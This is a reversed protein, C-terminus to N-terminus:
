IKPKILENKNIKKSFQGLTMKSSKWDAVFNELAETYNNYKELYISVADKEIRETTYTLYEYISVEVGYVEGSDGRKIYAEKFRSRNVKNDLQNITFIKNQEVKNLTLLDSIEGYNDRFKTQDLLIITDSNNIIGNKVIENNIIDELEQTVVVAEGFFKRVTKYLYLIYNAMNPSAIAKWAEEIILAKRGKKLRMKQIFVDMIIMTVIPFLVKHEKITDVEFVIFKEDFLSRDMESNLTIEYEGNKYFKKLVFKFSNLDFQIKDNEIIDKFKVISFDYFSNFSLYDSEKNSNFYDEYYAFVCNTIATDETPSAKGEVGKWLLILLSKLFERKEENYEEKTIKFPNMTIPSEESYTIYRGGYYSCIGSYSHGTDVLVIDMEQLYYQRVLHNMFFSKGSGSPGLVFKNRNNIRNTQMPLDLPDIAIPIGTRDTFYIKFDSPDDKQDNEKYMLCIAPELTTKFYDYHKINVANGPISSLFLEYQNYSNQSPIIGINFLANEVYNVSFSLDNKDAYIMISFHCDVLLENKKAINKLANEIDEVAIDNAPDPMSTHRKKKRQLNNIESRQNNIKFVQNYVLIESAPVQNIFYMLDVPFEYGINKTTFPKIKSPFHLEDLDILNLTKLKKGKLEISESNVNFNDIKINEKNSFSFSIFKKLLISVEKEDLFKPVFNASELVEFVKELNALYKEFEKSDYTYFANRNIEKTITIYTDCIKNVRGNFHEFYKKSLFDKDDTKNFINKYFVDQKQIIYGEGVVKLINEFVLHFNYYKEEDGSYELIPSEIAIISNYHGEEHYFVTTKKFKEFGLFPLEFTKSKKM